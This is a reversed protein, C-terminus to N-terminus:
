GCIGGAYEALSYIRFNVNCKFLNRRNPPLVGGNVEKALNCSMCLIQFGPPFCERILWLYLSHGSYIKSKRRHQAGNNNIHDVTLVNMDNDGCWGCFCGGYANCVSTKRHLFQAHRKEGFCGACQRRRIRRRNIGRAERWGYQNLPREQDCKTCIMTVMKIGEIGIYHPDRAPYYGHVVM